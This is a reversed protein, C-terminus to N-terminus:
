LTSYALLVLAPVAVIVILPLPFQSPERALVNVIACFDKLLESTETEEIPVCFYVPDARLGPTVTVYEPVVKFDPV